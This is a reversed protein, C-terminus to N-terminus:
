SIIYGTQIAEIVAGAENFTVEWAGEDGCEPGPFCGLHIEFKLPALERVSIEYPVPNSIVMVGKEPREGSLVEDVTKGEAIDDLFVEVATVDDRGRVFKLFNLFQKETLPAITKNRKTM